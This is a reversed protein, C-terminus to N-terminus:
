MLGNRSKESAFCRDCHYAYRLPHVTSRVGFWQPDGFLGLLVKKLVTRQTRSKETQGIRGSDNRDPGNRDTSM